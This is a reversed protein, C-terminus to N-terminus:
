STRYVVRPSIVRPLLVSSVLAADEDDFERQCVAKAFPSEFEGEAETAFLPGWDQICSHRDPVPV